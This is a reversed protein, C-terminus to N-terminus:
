AQDVLNLAKDINKQIKTSKGRYEFKSMNKYIASNRSIKQNAKAQKDREIEALNMSKYDM